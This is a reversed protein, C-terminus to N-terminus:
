VGLYKDIQEYNRNHRWLKFQEYDPSNIDHLQQEVDRLFYYGHPPKSMREIFKYYTMIALKRQKIILKIGLLLKSKPSLVDILPQLDDCIYLNEGSRRGGLNSPLYWDSFVFYKEKQSNDNTTILKGLILWSSIDSDNIRQIYHISSIVSTLNLPFKYHTNCSQKEICVSQLERYYSPCYCTLPYIFTDDVKGKLYNLRLFDYTDYMNGQPDFITNTTNNNVNLTFHQWGLELYHHYQLQQDHDRDHGVCLKWFDDKNYCRNVDDNGNM